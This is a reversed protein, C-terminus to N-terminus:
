RKLQVVENLLQDSVTIVRANSQYARQAVIMETFEKALDVNSGELFQSNIVTNTMDSASGVHLEGTQASMSYLGDGKQVLGATNNVQGIAVQALNRSKGNSYTGVINGDGDIVFDTLEGKSYGDNSTVGISSSGTYQTVSSGDESSGLNITLSKDSTSGGGPNYTINLKTGSTINGNQDFTINGTAGSTIKEGDLFSANYSWKNFDDQTLKLVLTHANGQADYVTASLDKSNTAGTTQVKYGPLSINGTDPTVGDNDHTGLALQLSLKSDGPKQSALNINGDVITATAEPPTGGFATNIADLLDQVTDNAAYTYTATVATGDNKTGTIDITDGAVLDTSTQKLDNLDTSATAFSGDDKTFASTQSLLQAVSTQSDLNGSLQINQTQKPEYISNFDVKINDPTGSAVINGSQDAKYGQVYAGNNTVLEGNDNFKFDGARTLLQQGNKNILFFGKGQIALDTKINTSNLPGQSFDRDISIIKSGLGVQNTLQPASDASSGNRAVSNAIMEAFTVRSQKFGVTDVNAINNGIVDMKTQFGQLGSIGSSLSNMLAM